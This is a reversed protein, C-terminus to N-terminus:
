RQEPNFHLMCMLTQRSSMEATQKIILRIDNEFGKDLMRDAEDLVLYSVRTSLHAHLNHVSAPFLSEGVSTM